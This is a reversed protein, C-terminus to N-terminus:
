FIYKGKIDYKQRLYLMENHLSIKISTNNITKIVEYVNILFKWTKPFNNTSELFKGCIKM